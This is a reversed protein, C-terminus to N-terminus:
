NVSIRPCAADLYLRRDEESWVAVAYHYQGRDGTVPHQPSTFMKTPGYGQSYVQQANFPSEEQFELAFPLESIWTVTDAQEVHLVAPTYVFNGATGPQVAITITHDSM